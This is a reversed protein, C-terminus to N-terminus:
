KTSSHQSSYYVILMTEISHIILDFYKHVKDKSSLNINNWSTLVIYCYEFLNSVQM